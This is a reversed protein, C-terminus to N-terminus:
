RKIDTETHVRRGTTADAHNPHGAAAGVVVVSREEAGFVLTEGTIAGQQADIVRPLVGPVGTLVFRDTAATYTLQQGQGSRGPQVLRVDGLLVFRELRQGIGGAAGLAGAGGSAATGNRSSAMDGGAEPGQLFVVGRDGSLTGQTGQVVVHGLFTAEHNLDSYDLAEAAVRIADGSAATARRNGLESPSGANGVFHGKASPAEKKELGGGSAAAKSGAGESAFVGHVVSGAAQPRAALTHRRGDLVLSAASVQSGGQWMQAPESDTGYFEALDAAHLLKATAARVHTASSGPQGISTLSIGGSAEGDGSAQHLVITPASLQTSGDSVEARAGADATLTLTDAGAQYVAREARGVSPTAATQRGAEQGASVKAAPWAHLTVHGTQVARTVGLAQSGAGAKGGTGQAREAFHAELRDGESVQRAGNAASQELVTHGVGNMQQPEPRNRANPLFTTELDDARVRTLIEGTNAGGASVTLVEADDGLRLNRLVPQKGAVAAGFTAAAHQAKLDRRGTDSGSNRTATAGQDGIKQGGAEQTTHMQVNGDAVASNLDGHADASLTLKAAEGREATGEAVEAFHVGGTFVTLEPRNDAGFQVHVQPASLTRVGTQTGTRAGTRLAVNGNGEGREVSGDKRLYLLAHDARAARDGSVWEASALAVTNAGRDMDARAAMLTFPANQLKGALKVDALLHLVGQGSEFEAGVSECRMGGYSFEVPEKTAAVELKRLFVLGSTRVHIVTPDAAAEDDPMFSFNKLPAHTKGSGASSPAQLDMHVEGIARLIGENQDYVFENGHIRDDRGDKGYLILVANHLSYVGNGHPTSKEAHLTFVTRGKVSQSWTIGNSEQVLNVGNRKLIQQWVRGARYKALGLFAALVGALLLAGGLTLWRFQKASWRM